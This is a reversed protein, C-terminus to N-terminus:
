FKHANKAYTGREAQVEHCGDAIIIHQKFNIWCKPPWGFNFYKSVHMCSATVRYINSREEEEFKLIEFAEHTM